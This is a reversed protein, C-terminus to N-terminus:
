NIKFLGAESFYIYNQDNLKIKVPWPNDIAKFNCKENLKYYNLYPGGFHGGSNGYKLLISKDYFEFKNTEKEFDNKFKEDSWVVLQNNRIEFVEEQEEIGYKKLIENEYNIYMKLRIKSYIEDKKQNGSTSFKKYLLENYNAISDKIYVSELKEIHTFNPYEYKLNDCYINGKSDIYFPINWDIKKEFITKGDVDIIQIPYNSDNKKLLIKDSKLFEIDFLGVTDIVVKTFKTKDKLLDLLYPLEPHSDKKPIPNCSLFFFLSSGYLLKYILAHLRINNKLFNKM